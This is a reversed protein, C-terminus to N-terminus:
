VSRGLLVGVWTAILCLVVSCIVYIGAAVSAGNELLNIADISFSSFTTFGGLFGILVGARWIGNLQWREIFGTALIGILLCGLVNVLLIGYPFHNPLFRHVSQALVFRSICGFAGGCAIVLLQLTYSPSNVANM